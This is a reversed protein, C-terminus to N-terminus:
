VDVFPTLTEIHVAGNIIATLNVAFHLGLCHCAVAQVRIMLYNFASRYVMKAVEM